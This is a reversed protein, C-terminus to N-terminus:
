KTAYYFASVLKWYADQWNCYKEILSKIEDDTLARINDKKSYVSLIYATRDNKIAYYIVRYGNKLSDLYLKSQIRM